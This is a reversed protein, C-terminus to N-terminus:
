RRAAIAGSVGTLAVCTLNKYVEGPNLRISPFGPQNPSDPYGHPELAIGHRARYHQGYKGKRASNLHNGSYIQMAPQNTHFELGRGSAPDRLAAAFPLEDSIRGLDGGNLVWSHDLGNSANIQPDQSSIADSIPVPERLDFPSADVARVEGTPIADTGTPLFHDANVQLTQDIARGPQDVGFVNWYTHNTLNVVTPRDTRAFYSIHLRNRDDIRFEAEVRLTGPFGQDGDPSVMALRVSRSDISVIDWIESNFGSAGGHLTYNGCNRSLEYWVGDLYIRGNAIRNSVRGITSGLYASDKLYGGMDPYGLVVDVPRTFAEPVILSQLTAGWTLIRAEVGNCNAIRVVKVTRGDPLNGFSAPASLSSGDIAM